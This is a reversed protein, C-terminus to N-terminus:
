GDDFRKCHIGGSSRVPRLEEAVRQATEQAAGRLAIQLDDNELPQPKGALDVAVGRQSGAGVDVQQHALLLDNTTQLNELLQAEVAPRRIQEVVGEVRAVMEVLLTGRLVQADPKLDM